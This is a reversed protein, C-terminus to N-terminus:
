LLLDSMILANLFGPEGRSSRKSSKEESTAFPLHSKLEMQERTYAHSLNGASKGLSAEPKEERVAGSIRCWRQHPPFLVRLDGSFMQQQCVAWMAFSVDVISPLFTHSCGGGGGGRDSTEGSALLCAVVLVCLM